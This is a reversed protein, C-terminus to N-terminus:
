GVLKCNDFHYRKAHSKDMIVGCHPCELKPRAHSIGTIVSCKDGHYKAHNGPDCNKGCHICKVKPIKKGTDSLKTMYSNWWDPDKSKMTALRKKANLLNHADLDEKSLSNEWKRRGLLINNRVTAREDSTRKECTLRVSKGVKKTRISKDNESLDAWIKKMTKSQTKCVEIKVWDYYKSNLKQEKTGTFFKNLAFAMEPNRHIKYLLEHAFFHERATLLVYNDKNNAGGMSKPIIHHKETYYNLKLKDLGRKLGREILNDYIKTYNM